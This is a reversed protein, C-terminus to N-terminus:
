HNEKGPCFVEPCAREVMDPDIDLSILKECHNLLPFFHDKLFGRGMDRRKYFPSPFVRRGKM